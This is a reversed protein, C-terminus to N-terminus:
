NSPNGMYRCFFHAEQIVQLRGLINSAGILLQPGSGDPFNGLSVNGQWTWFTGSDQLNKSEVVPLMGAVSEQATIIGEVEWGVSVNAMDSFVTLRLSFVPFPMEVWMAVEGPHMALITTNVKKRRLEAAM